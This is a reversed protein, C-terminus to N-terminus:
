RDRAVVSLVGGGFRRPSAQFKYMDLDIFSLLATTRCGIPEM